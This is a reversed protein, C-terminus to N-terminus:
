IEQRHLVLELVKLSFLFLGKVARSDTEARKWSWLILEISLKVILEKFLILFMPESMKGLKPQILELEKRPDIPDIGVLNLDNQRHIQVILLFYPTVQGTDLGTNYILM